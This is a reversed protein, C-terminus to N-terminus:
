RFMTKIAGWSTQAQVPSDPCGVPFAGVLGCEPNSEEACPSDEELRYDFWSTQRCLQPDLDMNGNVPPAQGALCADWDGGTNGYIDTCSVYPTVGCRYAGGATSFAIITNTLSLASTHPGAYIGGGMAASNDALTCQTIGVSGAGYLCLAGGMGTAANHGFTCRDLTMQAGDDAYLAGGGTASNEWFDCDDFAIGDYPVCTVAGGYGVATNGLFNCNEFAGNWTFVGGGHNATAHNFNFQCAEVTPNTSALAGGSHASNDWFECAILLPSECKMGGGLMTATNLSFYCGLLTASSCHMGGGGSSGESVNQYFTCDTLTPSSDSDSYVGGGDGTATNWEITCATIEPSSNICEIGAGDGASGYKLTFAEIRTSADCDTCQIVRGSWEADITVTERGGIDGLLCVGSKMALDHECYTDPAVLVTDGASAADIGAQITTQESPVHITVAEVPPTLLALSAAVVPLFLKTKM